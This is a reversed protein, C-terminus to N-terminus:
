LLGNRKLPWDHCICGHLRNGIELIIEKIKSLVSLYVAWGLAKELIVELNVEYYKVWRHLKLVM